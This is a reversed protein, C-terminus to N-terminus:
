KDRRRVIGRAVKSLSLMGRQLGEGVDAVKSKTSDLGASLGYGLGINNSTTSVGGTYDTNLATKINSGFERQTSSVTNKAMEMQTSLWNSLATDYNRQEIRLDRLRQIKQSDSINADIIQMLSKSEKFEGDAVNVSISKKTEGDMSTTNFSNDQVSIDNTTTTDSKLTANDVISSNDDNGQETNVTGISENDRVSDFDNGFGERNSNLQSELVMISDGSATMFTNNTSVKSIPEGNSISTPAQYGLEWPKDDNPMYSFESIVDDNSYLSESYGTGNVFQNMNDPPQFQSTVTSTMTSSRTDSKANPPLFGEFEFGQKSSPTRTSFIDIESTIRSSISPDRTISVDPHNLQPIDSQDDDQTNEIEINERQEGNDDAKGEEEEEEEESDSGEPVLESIGSDDEINEEEKEQQNEELPPASLEASETAKQESVEQVPKDNTIVNNTNQQDQTDLSLSEFGTKAEGVTWSDGSANSRGSSSENDDYHSLVDTYTDNEM